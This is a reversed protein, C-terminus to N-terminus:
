CARKPGPRPATPTPPCPRRPPSDTQPEAQPQPTAPAPLLIVPQPSEAQDNSAAPEAKSARPEGNLPQPPTWRLAESDVWRPKKRFSFRM